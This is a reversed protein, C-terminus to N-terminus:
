SLGQAFGPLKIHSLGGRIKLMRHFADHHCGERGIMSGYLDLFQLSKLPGQTPGLELSDKWTVEGSYALLAVVFVTSDHCETEPNGLRSQVYKVSQFQCALMENESRNTIEQGAAKHRVCVSFFLAHLLGVDAVVQQMLAIAGSNHGSHRIPAFIQCLGHYGITKNSVMEIPFSGQCLCYQKVLFYVYGRASLGFYFTQSPCITRRGSSISFPKHHQLFAPHELYLRIAAVM